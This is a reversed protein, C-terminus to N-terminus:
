MRLTDVMQNLTALYAAPPIKIEGDNIRPAAVYSAECIEDEDTFPYLEVLCSGDAGVSYFALPRQKTARLGRWLCHQMKRLWHNHGLIETVPREWSKLRISVARFFDDPLPITVYGNVADGKQLATKMMRYPALCVSSLPEMAKAACDELVLELRRRLSVGSVADGFDAMCSEPSEGMLVLADDIIEKVKM